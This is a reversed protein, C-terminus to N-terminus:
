NMRQTDDARRLLALWQDPIPQRTLDDFTRRLGAGVGDRGVRVAERSMERYMTQQESMPENCSQRKGDQGSASADPTTSLTVRRDLNGPYRGGASM